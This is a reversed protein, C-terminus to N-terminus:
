RWIDITRRFNKKSESESLPLPERKSIRAESITENIFANPTSPDTVADWCIIQYDDSVYNKSNRKEVSGVGRSSMGIPIRNKHMVSLIQGKPLDRFIEIKALVKNGEWWIENFIHSVCGWEIIPRDPHDLEGIARRASILKQYNAVERQLVSKPYIRNNHNIIDAEHVKGALILAGNKINGLDAETLLRANHEMNFIEGSYDLLLTRMIHVRKPLTKTTTVDM